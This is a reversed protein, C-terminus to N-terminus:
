GIESAPAAWTNCAATTRGEFGRRAWAHQRSGSGHTKALAGLRFSNVASEALRRSIDGRGAAAALFLGAFCDAQLEIRRSLEQGRPTDQGAQDERQYAAELIGISAQIHHGYEHALVGLHVASGGRDVGTLRSVPLFITESDPCYAATFNSEEFNGCFATGPHDAVNISPSTWPMGATALAARWSTDLCDRLPLYYARLKAENRGFQPLECAVPPLSVGEVLLPHDALKLQYRGAPQQPTVPVNSPDGPTAPPSTAAPLATGEIVRPRNAAAPAALMVVTLVLAAALAALVGRRTGSEKSPGV